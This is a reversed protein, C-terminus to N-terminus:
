GFPVGGWPSRVLVSRLLLGRNCISNQLLNQSVKYENLVEWRIMCSFSGHLVFHLSVNFKRKLSDMNAFDLLSDSGGHIVFFSAM